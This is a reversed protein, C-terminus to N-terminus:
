EVLPETVEETTAADAEAPEEKLVSFDALSIYIILVVVVIGIGMPKAWKWPTLDVAGVDEHVWPESRPAIKSMVIQFIMLIAFVIGLFHFDHVKQAMQTFPPVFYGLILIICGGALAMNATSGSVRRFLLGALVVSFIPIFYLGNM